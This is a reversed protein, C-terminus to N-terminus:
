LLRGRLKGRGEGGEFREAIADMGDGALFKVSSEEPGLIEHPL